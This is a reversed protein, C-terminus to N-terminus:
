DDADMGDLWLDLDNSLQIRDTLQAYLRLAARADPDRDPRLVFVDTIPESLSGDLHWKRVNFKGYYGGNM